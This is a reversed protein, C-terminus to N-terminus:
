RGVPCLRFSAKNRRKLRLIHSRGRGRAVKKKVRLVEFNGRAAADLAFALVRVSVIRGTAEHMRAVAARKAKPSAGAKVPLLHAATEAAVLDALAAALATV